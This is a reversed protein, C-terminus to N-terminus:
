DDTLVLLFTHDTRGPEEHVAVLSGSTIGAIAVGGAGAAPWAALSRAHETFLSGFVEAGTEVGNADIRSVRVDVSHADARTPPFLVTTTHRAAAFVGGAGDATIASFSTEGTAEVRWASRGDAEFAELEWDRLLVRGGGIPVVEPAPLYRGSQVTWLPEGDPTPARMFTGLLGDLPEDTLTARTWGAVYVRGDAAVALATASVDDAAVLPHEWLLAGVADYRRVFGATADPEVRRGAVLLDGNPAAAVAAASSGGADVPLTDSWVVTGDSELVSVHAATSQSTPPEYRVGAVAIRGAADVAVALLDGEVEVSTGDELTPGWRWLRSSAGSGGGRQVGILDDSGPDALLDALTWSRVSEQLGRADCDAADVALPSWWLDQDVVDVGVYGRALVTATLSGSEGVEVGTLSPDFAESPVSTFRLDEVWPTVGPESSWTLTMEDGRCLATPAGELILRPPPPPSTALIAVFGILAVPAAALRRWVRTM